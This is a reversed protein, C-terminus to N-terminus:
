AKTVCHTMRECHKFNSRLPLFQEERVIGYSECHCLNKDTENIETSVGTGVVSGSAYYSGNVLLVSYFSAELELQIRILSTQTVKSHNQKKWRFAM